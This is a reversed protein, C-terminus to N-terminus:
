QTLPDELLWRRLSHSQLTMGDSSKWLVSTGSDLRFYRGFLLSTNTNLNGIPTQPTSSNVNLLSLGDRTRFCFYDMRNATDPAFVQIQGTPSGRLLSMIIPFNPSSSAICRENM